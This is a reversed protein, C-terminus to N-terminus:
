GNEDTEDAYVMRIERFCAVAQSVKGNGSAYLGLFCGTYSRYALECSLLRASARCLHQCPADGLAYGFSYRAADGEMCLTVTGQGCLVACAEYAMDEAQKYVTLYNQGGRRLKTLKYYHEGTLFVILGAEEGDQLPDFDLRVQLRFRFAEQRRALLTPSGRDTIRAASGRLLVRQGPVDVTYHDLCPCRLYNWSLDEVRWPLAPGPQETEAPLPGDMEREVHGLLSVPWGDATWRVPTLFTERGLHSVYPTAIRVGLCVFWWHGAADQFLDAHGVCSIGNSCQMNTLVPNGAYGEYPGLLNRSRAVTAMHTFQTGGEAVLLYYWPGIHYLHPGEPFKGGSGAWLFAVPSLLRGTEPEIQAISIGRVHMESEQNTLLYAKGQEFFLAPDIGGMPTPIPQSWPGEAREAWLLVNQPGQDTMRTASVYFRGNAYAIALAWYGQSCRVDELGSWAPNTICYRVLEWHVLDKSRYVPLCPFYEFSSTVLYYTDKVRCIAPDPHFGPLIPNRYKM